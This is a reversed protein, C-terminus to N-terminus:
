NKASSIEGSPTFKGNSTISSSEFSLSSTLQVADGNFAGTFEPQSKISTAVSKDKTSMLSGPNFKMYNTTKNLTIDGSLTVNGANKISTYVTIPDLSKQPLSGANFHIYQTTGDTVLNNAKEGTFIAEITGQPTMTVNAEAGNGIFTPHFYKTTITASTNEIDDIFKIDGTSSTTSSTLNSIVSKTGTAKVGTLVNAYKSINVSEVYSISNTDSTTSSTLSIKGTPTINFSSTLENGTFTANSKPTTGPNFKMYGYTKSLSGSKLGTIADATTKVSAGTHSHHLYKTTKELSGNSKFGSVYTFDAVTPTSGADFHIYSSKYGTVLNSTSDGIFSIQLTKNYSQGTLVGTPEYTSKILGTLFEQGGSATSNYTISPASGVDTVQKGTATNLVPNTLSVDEIIKIGNSSTTNSALSGSGANIEKVFTDQSSVTTDTYTIDRLYTEAGDFTSVSFKLQPATGDSLTVSGTPTLSISSSSVSGTFDASLYKGLSTIGTVSSITTDGQVGTIVDSYTAHLYKETKNTKIDTINDVYKIGGDSQDNSNLSISGTPTVAVTATTEKGTFTASISGVPTYSGKTLSVLTPTGGSATTNVSLSPLSGVDSIDYLEATNFTPATYSITKTDSISVDSLYNIDGSSSANSITLEPLTGVNDVVKISESNLTLDSKKTISILGSPTYNAEGTGVSIDVASLKSYSGSVSINEENGTFTHTHTNKSYDALDTATTGIKEWAYTGDSKKITLYEVYTGDVAGTEAILYIIFETDASAAPLSDVIQYQFQDISAIKTDVESKSYVSLSSRAEDSSTAGTGGKNIPLTGLNNSLELNTAPYLLNGSKDKIQINAM